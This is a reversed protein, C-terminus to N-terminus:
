AYPVLEFCIDVWEAKMKRLNNELSFERTASVGIEELKAIHKILGVEIMDSLTSEPTPSLPIGVAESIQFLFLGNYFFLM